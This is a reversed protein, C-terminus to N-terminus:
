QRLQARKCLRTLANTINLLNNIRGCKDLPPAIPGGRFYVQICCQERNRLVASLRRTAIVVDGAAPTGNINRFPIQRSKSLPRRAVTSRSYEGRHRHAWQHVSITNKTNVLKSRSWRSGRQQEVLVQRPNQAGRLTRRRCRRAHGAPSNRTSVVRKFEDELRILLRKINGNKSTHRSCWVVATKSLPAAGNAVAIHYPRKVGAVATTRYRKHASRVLRM